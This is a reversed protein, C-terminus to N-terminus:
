IDKHGTEAASQYTLRGIHAFLDFAFGTKFLLHRGYLFGIQLISGHILFRKIYIQM